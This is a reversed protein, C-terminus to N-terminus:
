RGLKERIAERATERDDFHVVRMGIIQYDEHGKGAIIVVDGTKAERVAHFIAEKRDAIEVYRGPLSTKRVGPMIEAIIAQPEESRPNDSTVVIYDSLRGAIEGMVPRKKRDRDGGCGFVTIVRGTTFERATKLCNELSDPTHSYDVIVTFDQGEGGEEVKEFRGPIGALKELSAVINEVDIGEVLGVAVAALANYVNFFGTLRLRVPVARDTFKLVFRAGEARVEVKEAKVDANKRVAYTIVPVSTMEAIAGAYPDDWNIIAFKRRQKKSKVGLGAFLKGKAALYQEMEGHFDLHDQTLNTFVAVDFETGRVRSLELAHSSVEMVAYDAGKELFALFLKQLDPAEPTTHHVPIIERGIRNYITGVLGPRHGADELIRAILNTTTTKGNTGTVGIINLRSGPFGYVACSLDALAKRTSPVLLWPYGESMYRSDQIVAAAAGREMAEGIFLHGDTKFGPVAVFVSGAGAQCSDYVVQEVEKELDGSEALVETYEKLEALKM